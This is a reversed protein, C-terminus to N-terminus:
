FQGHIVVEEPEMHLLDEMSNHYGDNIYQEIQQLSFGKARVQDYVDTSSKTDANKPTDEQQKTAM